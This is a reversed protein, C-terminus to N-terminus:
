KNKVFEKGNWTVIDGNEIFTTKSYLYPSEIIKNFEWTTMGPKPYSPSFHSVDFIIADAGVSAQDFSKMFSFKDYAARAWDVKTLGARQWGGDM